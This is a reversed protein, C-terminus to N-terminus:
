FFLEDYSYPQNIVRSRGGRRGDSRNDRRDDRGDRRGDRMSISRNNRRDDRRSRNDRRDNRRGDRRDNRRREIPETTPYWKLFNLFTNNVDKRRKYLEEKNFIANLKNILNLRDEDSKGNIHILNQIIVKLKAKLKAENQENQLKKVTMICYKLKIENVFLLDFYYNYTTFTYKKNTRVGLKNMNMTERTFFSVLLQRDKVGDNM